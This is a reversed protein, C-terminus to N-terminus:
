GFGGEFSDFAEIEVGDHEWDVEDFVVLAIETPSDKFFGCAFAGCDDGDFGHAAACPRLVRWAGALPPVSRDFFFM